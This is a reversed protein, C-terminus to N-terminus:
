RLSNLKELVDVLANAIETATESDMDGPFHQVLLQVTSAIRYADEGRSLDGQSLDLVHVQLLAAGLGM